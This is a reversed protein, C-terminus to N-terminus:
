VVSKRDSDVQGILVAKGFNELTIEDNHRYVLYNGEIDPSDKWTLKIQPGRVAAKLRSVFPAYVDKENAPLATVLILSALVAFALKNRMIINYDAPVGM